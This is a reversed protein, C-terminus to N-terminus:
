FHVFHKVIKSVHKETKFPKRLRYPPNPTFVESKSTESRPEVKRLICNPRACTPFYIFQRIECFSRMLTVFTKFTKQAQM